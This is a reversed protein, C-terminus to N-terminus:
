KKGNWWIEMCFINWCSGVVDLFWTPIICFTVYEGELTLPPWPANFILCVCLIKECFGQGNPFYNM